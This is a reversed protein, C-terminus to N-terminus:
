VELGALFRVVARCGATIYPALSTTALFFGLLLCLAAHWLRLGAFRILFYVVVALAIVPSLTLILPYRDGKPRHVHDALRGAPHV